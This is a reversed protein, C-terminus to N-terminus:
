ENKKSIGHKKIAIAYFVAKANEKASADGKFYDDILRFNADIWFWAERIAKERASLAPEFIVDMETHYARPPVIAHGVKQKSRKLEAYLRKVEGQLLTDYKEGGLAIMLESQLEHVNREEEHYEQDSQHVYPHELFNKAHKGEHFLTIGKFTPSMDDTDQVLLVRREAIFNAAFSSSMVFPKWIEHRADKAILPIFHFWDDNKAEGLFMVGNAVPIGLVSHTRLVELVAQAEKSHTKEVVSRLASFWENRIRQRDISGSLPAQQSDDSLLPSQIFDDADARANFSAFFLM